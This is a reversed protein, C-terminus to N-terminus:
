VVTAIQTIVAIAVMLCIANAGMATWHLRRLVFSSGDTIATDMRSLLWTRGFFAVAPVIVFVLAAVWHKGLLVAITSVLGTTIVAYFYGQFMMRLLQAVQPIDLSVLLFAPAAILLYLLPLLQIVAAFLIYPSPM